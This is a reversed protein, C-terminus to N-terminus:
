RAPWHARVPMRIDRRRARRIAGSRAAGRRCLAIRASADFRGRDSSRAFGRAPPHDRAWAWARVRTTRTAPRIQYFGRIDTRARRAPIGAGTDRVEIAVQAGRRRVGVVRRRARYTAGREFCLQRLVRELLVPDSDVWVGTPVIGLRLGRAAALPAFERELRRSCLRWRFDPARHFWWRRCGLKSIDMLATFQRELAEVSANICDVIERTATDQVRAALAAGFLGMAHLPQRLDHSAAALFQTKGRNAAEATARARDAAATERTLEGILDVNEYRITLSQTM